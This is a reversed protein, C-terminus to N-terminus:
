EGDCTRRSCPFALCRRVCGSRLGGFKKLSQTEHKAAVENLTRRDTRASNFCGVSFGLKVVAVRGSRVTIGTVHRGRAKLWDALEVEILSIEELPSINLIRLGALVLVSRGLREPQAGKSIRSDAHVHRDM